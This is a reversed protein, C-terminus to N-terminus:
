HVLVMSISSSNVKARGSVTLGFEFKTDKARPKMKGQLKLTWRPTLTKPYSNSIFMKTEDIVHSKVPDGEATLGDPGNCYWSGLWCKEGKDTTIEYDLLPM